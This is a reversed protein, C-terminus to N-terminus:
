KQLQRIEALLSNAKQTQGQKNLIWLKLELAIRLNSNDDLKRSKYLRIARDLKAIADPYKGQDKDLRALDILSDAVVIPDALLSKERIALASRYMKQANAIQGHKEFKFGTNTLKYSLGRCEVKGIAFECWKLLPAFLEQNVYQNKKLFAHCAKLDEISGYIIDGSFVDERLSPAGTILMLRNRVIAAARAPNKICLLANALDAKTGGTIKIVAPKEKKDFYDFAGGYNWYAGGDLMDSSGSPLSEAAGAGEQYIKDFDAHDPCFSEDALAPSAAYLGLSAVLILTKVQM